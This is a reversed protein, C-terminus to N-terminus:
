IIKILKYIIEKYLTIGPHTACGVQTACDTEM